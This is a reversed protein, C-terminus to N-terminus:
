AKIEWKTNRLDGLKKFKVGDAEAAKRVTTWQKPNFGVKAAIEATPLTQGGLAKLSAVYGDREEKKMRGGGGEGSVSQGAARYAKGTIAAMTSYLDDMEAEIAKIAAKKEAIIEKLGDLHKEKALRAKEDIEQIAALVKESASAAAPAM